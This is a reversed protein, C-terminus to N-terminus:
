RGRFTPRRRDTFATIGEVADATAGTARMAEHELQLHEAWTVSGSGRLLRRMHGYAVTPGAAMRRGEELARAALADVPVAESAIGWDVAEQANLVRGGMVIQQARRLGVLRPLAWSSGGDGSLALLPFGAALKVNEAVLVVDACWLLGMGGGATPGQAACVIPVPLDGLKSLTRHFTGIMADLEDAIRHANRTFHKLDGGVTFSPGDATILVARVTADDAIADVAAALADVMAPDIANHADVWVLRLHALAGDVHLSVRDETNM